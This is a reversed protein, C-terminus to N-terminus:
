TGGLIDPSYRPKEHKGYVYRSYVMEGGDVLLDTGTTFTAKVALFYIAEACEEPQNWRKLLNSQAIANYTEADFFDRNMPTEGCGPSISNVRIGYPALLNALHKTYSILGGKAVVYERCDQGDHAATSSLIVISKLTKLNPRVYVDECNFNGYVNVGIPDEHEYLVGANLIIHDLGTIPPLQKKDRIDVIFHRYNLHEFSTGEKDIGIVSYGLDCFLKATAYGIGSSTGTILVKGLTEM